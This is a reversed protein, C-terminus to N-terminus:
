GILVHCCHCLITIYLSLSLCTFVMSCHIRATPMLLLWSSHTRVLGIM